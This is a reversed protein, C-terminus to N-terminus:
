SLVVRCCRGQPHRLAIDRGREGTRCEGGFGGTTAGAAAAKQMSAFGGPLSSGLLSGTTTMKHSSAADAAEAEAPLRAVLAPAKATLGGAHLSKAYLRASLDLGPRKAGGGAGGSFDAMLPTRQKRAPPAALPGLFHRTQGQREDM